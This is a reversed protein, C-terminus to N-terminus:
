FNLGAKRCSNAFSEVRGIYSKCGKDFVVDKIKKEICKKAFLEGIKEAIEIGSGKKTENSKSSAHVLVNASDCDILQASINKNSINIYIIPRNGHNYKKIKSRVRNLRRLTAKNM